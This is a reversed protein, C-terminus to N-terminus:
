IAAFLGLGPRRRDQSCTRCGYGARVRRDRGRRDREPASQVPEPVGPIRHPRLLPLLSRGPEGGDRGLGQQRAPHAQAPPLLGEPSPRAGPQGAPERRPRRVRQAATLAALESPRRALHRDAAGRPGGPAQHRAESPPFPALANGCSTLRPATARISSSAGRCSSGGARGPWGGHGPRAPSTQALLQAPVGTRRDHVQVDDVLQVDPGSEAGRVAVAPRGSPAALGPLAPDGAHVRREPPLQAWQDRGPRRGPLERHLVPRRAGHHVDVPRRRIRIRPSPSSVTARGGNLVWNHDYGHATTLQDGQPASAKNIDRGIPKMTRFDFPTGAVSAFGIPILNADTPQFTRSNIALKQNYIDGSGEGALNFYSHNTFNVVTPADTTARYTIRLGNNRTLAYTVTNQVTGPFGNKCNPDTYTLILSVGNSTTSTTAAWVQTNYSNPGGHLLNPGNNPMPTTPCPPGSGLPWNKGLTFQAGAIRNAYRGIIAGFYTDGSGGAPPNEFDKIYDNLTSFGLAVNRGVGKRDPVVISQVVGGYDSIRVIMGNGNRLTYLKVPQGHATGWNQSTISLHGHPKNAQPNQGHKAALALGGTGLLVAVTAILVRVYARTRLRHSRSFGIQM